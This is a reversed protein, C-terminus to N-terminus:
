IVDLEASELAGVVLWRLLPDAELEILAEVLGDEGREHFHRIVEARVDSRSTLVSLLARRVDQPLPVM